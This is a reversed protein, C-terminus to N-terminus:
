VSAKSVIFDSVRKASKGDFKYYYDKVFLDYDKFSFSGKLAKKLQKSNSVMSIAKSEDLSGYGEIERDEIIVVPRRLLLSEMITTSGSSIVIDSAHILEYVDADQVIDLNSFKMIDAIKSYLSFDRKRPHVKVILHYNHLDKVADVIMEFRRKEEYDEVITTYLIINKKYVGLKRKLKERSYDSLLDFLMDKHPDGFVKIWDEQYHGHEVLWKKYWNGYVITYDVLPVTEPSINDYPMNKMPHVYHTFDGIFGHQIGITKVGKMKGHYAVKRGFASAEGYLCIVSPSELNIIKEIILYDMISDLLYSRIFFELDSKVLLYIKYDDPDLKGSIERNFRNWGNKISKQIRRSKLIMSLDIYSEIPKRCIDKRGFNKVMRNIDMGYGIPVEISLMDKEKIKNKIIEFNDAIYPKHKKDYVTTLGSPFFLIPQRLKRSKEFLKLFNWAVTRIITRIRRFIIWVLRTKVIDRNYAGHKIKKFLTIFQEFYPKGAFIMFEFSWWFSYSDYAMLEKITLGDESQISSFRDLWGRALRDATKKLREGKGSVDYSM